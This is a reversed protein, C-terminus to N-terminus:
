GTVAALIVNVISWALFAVVMGILANTIYKKGKDKHEILGGATYFFGGLVVFLLAVLSIIGLVYNSLYRIFFPVMSLSVRGTVVACGLTQDMSGSGPKGTTAMSNNFDTILSECDGGAKPLITGQASVPLVTLGAVLASITVSVIAKVLINKLKESMPNKKIM